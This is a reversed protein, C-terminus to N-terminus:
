ASCWGRLSGDDFGAVFTNGEANWSISWVPEENDNALTCVSARAGLDWLKIHGECGGTAVFGSEKHSAAVSVVWDEHKLKAIRNGQNVDYINMTKDDSGSILLSSDNSFDVSRICGAHGTFEHVKKGTETDLVHILANETSVAIYKGNPSFRLCMPFNKRNETEKTDYETYVEYDETKRLSVKGFPNATVYYKGDPSYQGTWIKLSGDSLDWIRITSDISTSAALDGDPHVDVSLIGLSHDDLEHKLEGTEADWIKVQTDLSGTVLVNGIPSFKVSYIADEHASSTINVDCIRICDISKPISGGDRDEGCIENTVGEVRGM